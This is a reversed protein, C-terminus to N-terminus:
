HQAGKVAVAGRGDIEIEKEKRAVDKAYNVQLAKSREEAKSAAALIKQDKANFDAAAKSTAALYELVSVREVEDGEVKEGPYSKAVKDFLDSLVAREYSEAVQRENEEVKFEGAMRLTLVYNIFEEKGLVEGVAGMQAALAARGMAQRGDKGSQSLKGALVLGLKTELTRGARLKHLQVDEESWAEAAEICEDLLGKQMACMEIEAALTQTLTHTHTIALTLTLTLALTLTLTLTLALARPDEAQEMHRLRSSQQASTLVRLRQKLEAEGMRWCAEASGLEQQM